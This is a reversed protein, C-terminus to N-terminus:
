SACIKAITQPSAGAVSAIDRLSAGNAQALRIATAWQANLDDKQTTLRRVVSLAAAEASRAVDLEALDWRSSVQSM